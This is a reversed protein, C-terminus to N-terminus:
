FAILYQILSKGSTALSGPDGSTDVFQEVKFIDEAERISVPSLILTFPNQTNRFQIRIPNTLLSGEVLSYDAEAFNIQLM